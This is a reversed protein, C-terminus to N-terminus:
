FSAIKVVPLKWDAEQAMHMGEKCLVWSPGEKKTVVLFADGKGDVYEFPFEKMAGERGEPIDRIVLLYTKESNINNFLRDIAITELSSWFESDKGALKHCHCFALILLLYTEQYEPHWRMMNREFCMEIDFKPNERWPSILSWTRPDELLFEENPPMDPQVQGDWWTLPVSEYRFTV